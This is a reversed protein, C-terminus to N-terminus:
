IEKTQNGLKSYIEGMRYFSSALSPDNGKILNMKIELGKEQYKMAVEFKQMKESYYSSIKEFLESVPLSQNTENRKLIAIAHLISNNSKKLHTSPNSTIYDISQDLAEMLENVLEIKIKFEYDAEFFKNFDRIFIRHMKIGYYPSNPYVPTLLNFDSLKQIADRCSKQWKLKSLLKLSIYDPDIM